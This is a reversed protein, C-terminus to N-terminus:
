VLDKRDVDMPDFHFRKPPERSAQRPEPRAYSALPLPASHPPPASVPAVPPHGLPALSFPSRKEATPEHAGDRIHAKVYRTFQAYSVGLKERWKQYAYNMSGTALDAKIGAIEMMFVAKGRKYFRPPSQSTSKETVCPCGDGYFDM